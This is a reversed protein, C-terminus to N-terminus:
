ACVNGEIASGVLIRRNLSALSAAQAGVSALLDATGGSGDVIFCHSKSCEM